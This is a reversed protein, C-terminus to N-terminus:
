TEHSKDDDHRVVGTESLSQNDVINGGFMNLTSSAGSAPAIDGLNGAMFIHLNRKDVEVALPKKAYKFPMLDSAAKAQVKLVDIPDCGLLQALATTNATQIMSLTVAPDRHGLAELYEFVQTNRKNASGKPRGRDRRPRAVLNASVSLPDLNEIDLSGDILALQDADDGEIQDRLAAVAQAIENQSPLDGSKQRQATPTHAALHGQKPQEADSMDCFGIIKNRYSPLQVQLRNTVSFKHVFDFVYVRLNCTVHNCNLACVHARAHFLNIYRPLQYGCRIVRQKKHHNTTVIKTVCKYGLLRGLGAQGDILMRVDARYNM